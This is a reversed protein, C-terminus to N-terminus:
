SVCVAISTPRPWAARRGGRGVEGTPHQEHELGALLAVVAGAVHELLAQEVHGGEGVARRRRDGAANAMCMVEASGIPRPEAAPGPEIM